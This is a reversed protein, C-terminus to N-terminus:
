FRIGVSLQLNEVSSFLTNSGSIYWNGDLKAVACIFFRKLNYTLSSLARINFACTTASGSHDDAYTRNIGVGPFLSINFLLKRNIVWNYTYGGIVTYSRYHFRYTEPPIGLYPKLEEPLNNFDIGININNYSFGAIFSGASRLQYKSFNYAAGLSFKRNNFIYYGYVAIDTLKVGDFRKKILHGRNFDGFTRIYTGGDNEWYHGEINFRACNFSYELKKHKVEDGSILNGIDFSYGVSVAMYQLYAGINAYPDSMMRVPVKKGPNIYYSDMWNDSLIRLKWRKGTGAVYDPDYSNFTRDAWHYVGLCFRLFKPYHVTTDNLSLKGKWLLHWWNRNSDPVEPRRISRLYILERDTMFDSHEDIIDDFEEEYYDFDDEKEVDAADARVANAELAALSPFPESLSPPPSDVNEGKAQFCSLLASMWASMIILISFSTTKNM